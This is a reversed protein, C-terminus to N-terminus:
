VLGRFSIIWSDKTAKHRRTLISLCPEALGQAIQTGSEFDARVSRAAATSQAALQAVAEPVSSTNINWERLRMRHSQIPESVM